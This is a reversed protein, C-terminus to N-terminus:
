VDNRLSRQTGFVAHGSCRLTLSFAIYQPNAGATKVLTHWGARQASLLRSRTQVRLKKFLPTKARTLSFALVAPKCGCSELLTLAHTPCTSPLDM